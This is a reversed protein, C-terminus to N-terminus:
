SERPPWAMVVRRGSVIETSQRRKIAGGKKGFHKRRALWGEIAKAENLLPNEHTQLTQWGRESGKGRLV